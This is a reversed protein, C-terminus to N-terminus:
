TPELQRSPAHTGPLDAFAQHLEADHDPASTLRGFPLLFEATARAMSTLKGFLGVSVSGALSDCGRARLTTGHARYVRSAVRIALRSRAPIYRMGVRGSHYYDDALDLLDAVVSSVAERDADGALLAEHDTGARQLRSEPLYVRRRQVDELVDRSINTLQMGVGLDIAHSQAQSDDVGLLPSMMLGVTGAVRYCYRLLERDTEVRVDGLDSAVGEILEDAYDLDIGRQQCVRCFGSVLPRRPSEGRLEARVDALRSAATAEDDTEDAIDDVLRCFAYVIAAEDRRDAPLFPAAWDFSGSKDALVSRSHEVVARMESDNSM